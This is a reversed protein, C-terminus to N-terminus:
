PAATDAVQHFAPLAADVLELYARRLATVVPGLEVDVLMGCRALAVHHVLVAAEPLWPATRDRTV